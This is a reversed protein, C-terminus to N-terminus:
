NKLNLMGGVIRDYKPPNFKMYGRAPTFTMEGFYIKGYIIIHEFITSFDTPFLLFFM